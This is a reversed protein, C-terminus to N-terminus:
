NEEENGFCNGLLVILNHVHKPELVSMIEKEKAVVKTECWDNHLHHIFEHILTPIIEKRYDITITELGM